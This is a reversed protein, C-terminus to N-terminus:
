IKRCVIKPTQEGFIASFRRKQRRGLHKPQNLPISDQTQLDIQKM